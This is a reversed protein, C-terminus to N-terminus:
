RGASSSERGIEVAGAQLVAAQADLPQEIAQRAFGFGPGGGARAFGAFDDIRAAAAGRWRLRQRLMRRSEGFERGNAGRLACRSDVGRGRAQYRPAHCDGRM